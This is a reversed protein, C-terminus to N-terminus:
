CFADQGGSMETCSVEGFGRMCIPRSEGVGEVVESCYGAGVEGGLFDRRM